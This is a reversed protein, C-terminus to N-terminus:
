PDTARVLKALTRNLLQESPAEHAVTPEYGGEAFARDTPIYMPGYDGYGAVCVFADQRLEQAKLQHEVFPQGPLPVILGKGLDLCSLLIPREGEIVARRRKECPVGSATCKDM